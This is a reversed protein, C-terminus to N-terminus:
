QFYSAPLAPGRLRVVGNGCGLECYQRRQHDRTKGIQKSANDVSLQILPDVYVVGQPNAYIGYNGNGYYVNFFLDLSDGRENLVPVQFTVTDMAFTEVTPFLDLWNLNYWCEILTGPGGPQRGLCGDVILNGPHTVTVSYFQAPQPPTQVCAGTGSWGAPCTCVHDAVGVATCTGPTCPNPFCQNQISGGDATPLSTGADPQQVTGGDAPSVVGGDLQCSVLGSVNNYNCQTGEPCGGNNQTCPSPGEGPEMGCSAVFALLAVIIPVISYRKM